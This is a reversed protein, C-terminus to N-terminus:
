FLRSGFLEGSDIRGRLELHLPQGLTGRITTIGHAVFLTLLDEAYGAPEPGPVHAHMEAFGPMLFRGSGDVGSTGAPAIATGTSSIRAIRGDQVLLDHKELVSAGDMTIVTANRFLVPPDSAQATCSLVSMLLLLRTLM